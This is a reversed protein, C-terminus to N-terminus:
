EIHSLVWSIDEPPIMPVMAATIVLGLLCFLGVVTFSSSPFLPYTKSSRAALHSM